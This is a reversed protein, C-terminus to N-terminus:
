VNGSHSIVIHTNKIAPCTMDCDWCPPHKDWHQFNWGCMNPVYAWCTHTLTHKKAKGSKTQSKVPILSAKYACDSWPHVSCWSYISGWSEVNVWLAWWGNVWRCGGHFSQVCRETSGESTGSLSWEKGETSCLGARTKTKVLVPRRCSESVAFRRGCSENGCCGCCDNNKLGLFVLAPFIM